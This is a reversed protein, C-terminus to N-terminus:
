EQPSEQEEWNEELWRIMVAEMTRIKQNWKRLKEEYHDQYAKRTREPMTMTGKKWNIVPNYERLWPLGLIINHKGINTVLLWILYPDKGIKTRIHTFHTIKGAQNISQDVNWPIIPHSLPYLHVNHEKAYQPSMFNGEAGCDLLVPADIIQNGAPSTSKIPLTIIFAM